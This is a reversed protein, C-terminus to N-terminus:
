CRIGRGAGRTWSRRARGRRDASCRVARRRRLPASAACRPLNVGSHTCRGAAPRFRSAICTAFLLYLILLSAPLPHRTVPSEELDFVQVDSDGAFRDNVAQRQAHGGALHVRDHPGVAGALACEGVREHAVWAVGDGAAADEELALVDGAQRWVLPGLLAEEEGHLVRGRDGAHRHNVEQASGQFRHLALVHRDALEPLPQM